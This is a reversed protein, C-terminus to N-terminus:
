RRRWSRCSGRAALGVSEGHGIARIARVPAAFADVRSNSATAPTAPDAPPLLPRQPFSSGSTRVLWSWIRTRSSRGGGTRARCRKAALQDIGTSRVSETGAHRGRRPVFRRDLANRVGLAEPRECRHHDRRIPRPEYRDRRRPGRRLVRLRAPARRAPGRARQRSGRHQDRQEAALWM